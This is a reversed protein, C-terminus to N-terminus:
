VGDTLAWGPEVATCPSVRRGMGLGGEGGLRCTGPSARAGLPPEPSAGAPSAAPREWWSKGAPGTAPFPRIPAAGAGGLDAGAGLGSLREYLFQQGQLQTPVELFSGSGGHVGLASCSLNPTLLDLVSTGPPPTEEARGLRGWSPACVEGRRPLSSLKSGLAGLLGWWGQVAGSERPCPSVGPHGRPLLVDPSSHAGASSGTGARAVARPWGLPAPPKATPHSM